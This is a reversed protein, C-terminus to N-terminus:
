RTIAAFVVMMLSDASRRRLLRSALALRVRDTMRMRRLADTVWSRDELLDAISIARRRFEGDRLIRLRRRAAHRGVNAGVENRGHQRYHLTSRSDIHWVWGHSRAYAYILWDHVPMELVRRYKARTWARLEDFAARTLVFTCGPGASEFLHDFPRQPQSKVLKRARGDPWFATVNSSYARAGTRRLEEIARQLKEPYWVDDQDAFAIYQADNIEADHVLRMFNRNANGMAHTPPPLFVLPARGAFERLIAPTADRSADDSAHVCVRVNTQAFLSELQEHLWPEGNHTALLIAVLPATSETM